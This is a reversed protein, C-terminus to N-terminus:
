TKIVLLETNFWLEKVELLPVLSLQFDSRLSKMALPPTISASLYLELM